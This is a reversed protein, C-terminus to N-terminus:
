ASRSLGIGDVAFFLRCHRYGLLADREGRLEIGAPVSRRLMDWTSVIDSSWFVTGNRQAGLYAARALIMVRRGDGFDRRFGDYVSATHFLPYVNYFRSGSGVFFIDKAPDVDPETEDLWLYDFDYPKVYRDRIKEWFWKAAEPNTTDINPGIADSYGASDPKGDPAHILWGKQLLMDYFQTGAAYHPWVSLLTGVGMAHLERNMAAPDPWRKPDLDMEGQKTMNLFDVVMVDLPLNKRRYEKAVDLVQEQTPYIAKSQIFGYTARPLLHTVGTLLRYGQYIEDSTGGAIM